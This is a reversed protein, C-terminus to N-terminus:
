FLYVAGSDPEASSTEDGGTGRAASDEDTAGIAITGGTGSIAVSREHSLTM